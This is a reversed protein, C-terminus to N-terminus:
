VDAYFDVEYRLKVPRTLDRPDLRTPGPLPSGVRGSGVRGSGVRDSGWMNKEFVDQGTFIGTM